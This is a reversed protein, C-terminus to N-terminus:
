NLGTKQNKKKYYVIGFQEREARETIEWEDANFNPFKVEGAAEFKMYSLIMADAKGSELAQRYIEGGGIIFIKEDGLTDCYNLAEDLSRFIKLGEQETVENGTTVVCNLRGKLPKGLTQFTKRGMIVPHGFTTDKFHKFEEKVNWPM